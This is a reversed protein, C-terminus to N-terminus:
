AMWLKNVRHLMFPPPPNPPIYPAPRNFLLLRATHDARSEAFTTDQYVLVVTPQVYYVM